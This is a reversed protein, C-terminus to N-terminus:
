KFLHYLCIASIKTSSPKSYHHPPPNPRHRLIHPFRTPNQSSTMQSHKLNLPQQPIKCPQFSPLRQIHLNSPFNLQPPQLLLDELLEMHQLNSPPLMSINPPQLPLQAISTPPPSGGADAGASSPPWDTYVGGSRLRGYEGLSTVACIHCFDIKLACKESRLACDQLVKCIHLATCTYNGLLASRGPTPSVQQIQERNTEMNIERNFKGGSKSGM